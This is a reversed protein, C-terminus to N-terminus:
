KFVYRELKFKELPKYDRQYDAKVPEELPFIKFFDKLPKKKSLKLFTETFLNRIESSIRPHAIIPPPPAPPTKYLIRLSARIEEPQRALHHIGTSGADVKRLVVNRIVNDHTKLFLAKYKIKFIEELVARMYISGPFLNREPFGIKKGNLDKVKKYPSDKRVILIGILPKKGRVLPIYGQSSKAMIAHYVSVFAFDLKGSLLDSEFDNLSKYHKLEFKVGTEKELDNLLLIWYKHIQSPIFLPVVGFTYVRELGWVKGSFFLLFCCIFFFRSNKFYFNM